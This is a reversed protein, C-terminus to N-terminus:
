FSSRLVWPCERTITSEHIPKYGEVFAHNKWFKWARVVALPDTQQSDVLARVQWPEPQSIKGPHLAILIYSNDIKHRVLVMSLNCTPVPLRNKIFRSYGGRGLIMAYYIDDLPLKTTDVCHALGVRYPFKTTEAIRHEDYSSTESFAKPLLELMDIPKTKLHPRYERDYVIEGSALQGLIELSLM